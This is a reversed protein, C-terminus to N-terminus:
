NVAELRNRFPPGALRTAFFMKVVEDAAEAPEMDGAAVKSALMTLRKPETSAELADLIQRAALDLVAKRSREIESEHPADHSSSLFEKHSELASALEIIGAESVVSTQIVPREWGSASQYAASHLSRAVADAGPLDAKNVVYIDAVELLGAKLSQIEDGMGPTLVVVVSQVANAVDLEGQGVGVTEVLVADKGAARLIVAADDVAAALGGSRGRSAMSRVFVGPDTAIEQM